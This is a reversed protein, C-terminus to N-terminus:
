STSVRKPFWRSVIFEVDAVNDKAIHEYDVFSEHALSPCATTGYFSPERSSAWGITHVPSPRTPITALIEDESILRLLSTEPGPVSLRELSSSPISSAFSDSTENSVLGIPTYREEYFPM